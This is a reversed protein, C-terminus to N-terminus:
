LLQLQMNPLFANIDNMMLLQWANELRLGLTCPLTLSLLEVVCLLIQM